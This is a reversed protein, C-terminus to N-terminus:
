VGVLSASLYDFLTVFASLVSWIAIIVILVVAALQQNTTVYDMFSRKYLGLSLATIGLAFSCNGVFIHIFKLSVPKIFNRLSRSYAAFLGFITSVMALLWSVLGTIAHNSQFHESGQDNKHSIMCSIGATVSITSLGLLVGHIYTKKNRPLRQNWVNAESFSIIGEAMLPVYACTCWFIHWLLKSNTDHNKFFVWFIAVAVVAVVQHYITNCVWQIRQFLSINSIDIDGMSM